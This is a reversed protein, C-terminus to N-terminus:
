KGGNGKGLADENRATREIYREEKNDRKDEGRKENGGREMESRPQTADHACSEPAGYRTAVHAKSDLVGSRTM